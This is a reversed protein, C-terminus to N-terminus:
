TYVINAGYEDGKVTEGGGGGGMLVLEGVV